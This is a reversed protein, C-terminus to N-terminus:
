KNSSLKYNFSVTFLLSRNSAYYSIGRISRYYKLLADFHFYENDFFKYGISAMAGVYLNYISGQIDEPYFIQCGGRPPAFDQKAFLNFAFYTGLGTYLRRKKDFHFNVSLPLTVYDLKGILLNEVGEPYIHCTSHKYGQRLYHLGTTLSGRKKFPYNVNAGVYFTKRQPDFLTEEINSQKSYIGGTEIGISLGQAFSPISLLLLIGLIIYIKM